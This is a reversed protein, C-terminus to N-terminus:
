NARGWRFSKSVDHQLPLEDEHCDIVRRIQLTCYGDGATDRLRATSVNVNDLSHRV